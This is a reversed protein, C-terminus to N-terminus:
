ISPLGERVRYENIIATAMPDKTAIAGRTVLIQMYKKLAMHSNESMSSWLLTVKDILKLYTEDMIYQSANLQLFFADDNMMIHHLFLHGNPSNQDAPLSVIKMFKECVMRPNIKRAAKLKDEYYPLDKDEPFANKLVSFFEDMKSCFKGLDSQQDKSM